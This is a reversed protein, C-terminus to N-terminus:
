VTKVSGICNEYLARMKLEIQPWSFRAAVAARCREAVAARAAPSQQEGLLDHTAAAFAAPTPAVWQGGGLELLSRWPTTQAAVVQTGAALAELVVNGFSEMHSTLWLVDASRLLRQKAEGTLLGVFRVAQAAAEGLAAQAEARLRAGYSGLASELEGREPGVILLTADQTKEVRRLEILAAIALELNKVPHVRGLVVIRPRPGYELLPLAPEAACVTIGNEILGIRASKGLLGEQRLKKLATVEEESTAHWGAVQRLLVSLLRLFLRKRPSGQQM